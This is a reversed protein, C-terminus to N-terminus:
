EKETSQASQSSSSTSPMSESSNPRNGFFLTHNGATEDILDALQPAERLVRLVNDLTAEEPFSWRVVLTAIVKRKEEALARQREDESKGQVLLNLMRRQFATDATRFADSHVGRVDIWQDTLEGTPLRLYVRTGENAVERTFFAAAGTTVKVIDRKPTASPAHSSMGEGASAAVSGPAVDDGMAETEGM